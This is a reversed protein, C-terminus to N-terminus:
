FNLKAMQETVSNTDSMKTNTTYQGTMIAHQNQLSKLKNELRAKEEVWPKILDGKQGKEHNMCAILLTRLFSAREELKELLTKFEEVENKMKELEKRAEDKEEDNGNMLLLNYVMYDDGEERDYIRGKIDDTEMAIDELAYDIQDSDQLESLEKETKKIRNTIIKVLPNEPKKRMADIKNQIRKERKRITWEKKAEEETLYQVYYIEKKNFPNTNQLRNYNPVETNLWERLDEACFVYLTDGDKDWQYKLRLGRGLRIRQVMVKVPEIKSTANTSLACDVKEPEGMVVVNKGMPELQRFENLTYKRGIEPERNELIEDDLQDNNDSEVLLETVSTDSDSDSLDENTVFFNDHDGGWEYEAGEHSNENNFLWNLMLHRINYMDDNFLYPNEVRVKIEYEKRSRNVERVYCRAYTQRHLKIRDRLGIVSRNVLNTNMFIDTLEEIADDRADSGFLEEDENSEALFTIGAVDSQICDYFLSEIADDVSRTYRDDIEFGVYRVIRNNLGAIYFNLQELLTRNLAQPQLCRRMKIELRYENPITQSIYQFPDNVLCNFSSFLIEVDDWDLPVWKSIEIKFENNPSSM